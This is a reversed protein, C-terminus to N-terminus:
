PACVSLANEKLTLNLNWIMHPLSCVYLLLHSLSIHTEYEILVCTVIIRLSTHVSWDRFWSWLRTFTLLM